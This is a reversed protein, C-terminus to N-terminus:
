NQGTGSEVHAAVAESASVHKQYTLAAVWGWTQDILDLSPSLIPALPGPPDVFGPVQKKKAAM